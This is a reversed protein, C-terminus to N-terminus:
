DFSGSFESDLQMCFRTSPSRIWPYGSLPRRHFIARHFCKRMVGAAPLRSIALAIATWGMMRSTRFDPVRTITAPVVLPYTASSIRAACPPASPKERRRKKRPIVSGGAREVVSAPRKGSSLPNGPSTTRSFPTQCFPFVMKSTASSKFSPSTIRFPAFATSRPARRAAIRM